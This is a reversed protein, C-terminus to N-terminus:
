SGAFSFIAVALLALTVFGFVLLRSYANLVAMRRWTKPTDEFNGGNRFRFYGTGRQHDRWESYTLSAGMIVMLLIVAAKM